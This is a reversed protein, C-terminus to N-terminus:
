TLEVIKYDIEEIRKLRWGIRKELGKRRPGDPMPLKKDAKTIQQYDLMNRDKVLAIQQNKKMSKLKDLDDPLEDAKEPLNEGPWLKHEDPIERHDFYAQRAFYLEDMRASLKKIEKLLEARKSCNEESNIEAVGGMDAHRMSRERYCEAYESIVRRVLPHYQDTVEQVPEPHQELEATKAQVVTVKQVPKQGTSKPMTLWNLGVDKCLEYHLKDTYRAPRGPMTNKLSKNKGYLQYLAIGADYDCGSIWWDTVKKQIEANM